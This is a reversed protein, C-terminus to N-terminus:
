IGEVFFLPFLREDESVTASLFFNSNRKGQIFVFSNLVSNRLMQVSSEM